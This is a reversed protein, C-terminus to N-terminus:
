IVSQHHLFGLVIKPDGHVGRGEMAAAASFGKAPEYIEYQTSMASPSFSLLLSPAIDGNVAHKRSITFSTEYEMLSDTVITSLLGM